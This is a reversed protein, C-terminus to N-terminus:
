DHPAGGQPAFFLAFGLAALGAAAWLYSTAPVPRQDVVAKFFTSGIMAYGANTLMKVGLAIRVRLAQVERATERSAIVEFSM